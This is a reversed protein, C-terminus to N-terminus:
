YSFFDHLKQASDNRIASIIKFTYAKLNNSIWNIPCALSVSTYLQAWSLTSSVNPHLIMTYREILPECHTFNHKMILIQSFHPYTLYKILGRIIYLLIQRIRWRLPILFFHRILRLSSNRLCTFVKDYFSTYKIMTARICVTSKNATFFLNMVNDNFVVILEEARDPSRVDILCREFRYCVAFVAWTRGIPLRTSSRVEHIFEIFLNCPAVIRLYLDKIQKFEWV